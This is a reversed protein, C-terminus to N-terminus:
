DSQSPSGPVRPRLGIHGVLGADALFRLRELVEAETAGLAAAIVEYPHPLLPFGNGMIELLRADLDGPAPAEVTGAGAPPPALHTLTGKNRLSRLRQLVEDEGAGCARGIVEFPRPTLPLGERLVDFLRNHDMFPELHSQLRDHCRRPGADNFQNM